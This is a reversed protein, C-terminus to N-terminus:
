KRISLSGFVAVAKVRLAPSGDRYAASTWTRDGFAVTTGDPARVSGFVSSMSIKVPADPNVRLTGSGFIVNVERTTDDAPLGTFDIDGSGFIVNYDRSGATEGALTTRSGFVVTNEDRVAPGHVIIRVGLYVFVLAVIIRGIPLTFPVYKKVILLVGAVILLVGWFVADILTVMRM